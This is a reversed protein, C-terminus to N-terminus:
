PVSARLSVGLYDASNTYRGHLTIGSIPDLANVSSDMSAHGSSFYHAYGIDLQYGGSLRAGVGFGIMVRGADPVGTDRYADTVPSEDFGTGARLSWDDNWRYVGGLSFMWSDRYGEPFPFQPNPPATILVQKLTHWQALQADASLSLKPTVQQTISGTITAPLDIDTHAPASVLGLLSLTTASFDLRGELSHAVASRYALGIRMGGMPEAIVGLNYGLAYGDVHLLYDADPVSPGFIASQAVATFLKLKLYQVSVGGGVSLHEGLRYSLNPNIDLSQVTTQLNQYRGPWDGAYDVANNFPATIAIGAKLRDGLDFVGYAHPLLSLQGADRPAGQPIPKGQLTANGSFQVSPAALVGGLEWQTGPLYSMAAPNNFVTALDGAASGNGAYATALSAASNERTMFASAHAAAPALVFFAALLRMRRTFRKM